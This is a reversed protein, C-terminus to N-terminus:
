TIRKRQRLTNIGAATALVLTMLILSWMSMTPIPITPNGSVYNIANVMLLDGDTGPNWFSDNTGSDTSPPLFNLSIIRGNFNPMEAVLPDGNSWDAILTAGPSLGGTSRWSGSGGDFSSVGTMVPHLADHVTGLFLQPDNTQGNPDIPDYGGSAWRGQLGGSANSFVGLVVGGGGDVYDALVNGFTNLDGGFDHWFFVADYNQVQALTPTGNFFEFSDVNGTVMGTALIKNRVDDIDATSDGGVILVSALGSVPLLFFIPFLLVVVFYRFHSM